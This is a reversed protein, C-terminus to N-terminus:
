AIKTINLDTFQCKLFYDKNYNTNSLTDHASSYTIM